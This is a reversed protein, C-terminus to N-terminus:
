SLNDIDQSLTYKKDTVIAELVEVRAKLQAVEEKLRSHEDNEKLAQEHKYALERMERRHQFFKRVIEAGFIIMIIAIAINM